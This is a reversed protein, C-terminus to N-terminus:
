CWTGNALRDFGRHSSIPLRPTGLATPYVPTTTVGIDGVSPLGRNNRMPNTQVNCQLKVSIHTTLLEPVRIRRSRQAVVITPPHRQRHHSVHTVSARETETAPTVNATPAPIGPGHRPTPARHAPERDWSAPASDGSVPSGHLSWLARSRRAPTPARNRSAPKATSSQGLARSSITKRLYRRRRSYIGRRPHYFRSPTDTQRDKRQPPQPYPLALNNALARSKEELM